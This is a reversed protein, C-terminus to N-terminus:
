AVAREAATLIPPFGEKVRERRGWQESEAAGNLCYLINVYELSNAVAFLINAVGPADSFIGTGAKGDHEDMLALCGLDNVMSLLSRTANGVEDGFLCHINSLDDDALNPLAAEFIKIFSDTVVPRSM